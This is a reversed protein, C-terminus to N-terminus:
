SGEREDRSFSGFTTYQWCCRALFHLRWRTILSCRRRLLVEAYQGDLKYDGYFSPLAYSHNVNILVSSSPCGVAKAIKDRIENSKKIPILALDISVIVVRNGDNEVVVTGVELPEGYGRGFMTRNVFGAMDIDLPPHTVFRNVWCTFFENSIVGLNKSNM